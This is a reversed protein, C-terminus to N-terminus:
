IIEMEETWPKKTVLLDYRPDKIGSYIGDHWTWVRNQEIALQLSDEDEEDESDIESLDYTYLFECECEEHDFCEAGSDEYVRPQYEAKWQEFPM